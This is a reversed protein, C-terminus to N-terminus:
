KNAHIKRYKQRTNQPATTKHKATSYDQTKRYQLRTNTRQSEIAILAKSVYTDLRAYAGCEKAQM